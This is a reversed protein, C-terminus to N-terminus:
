ILCPDDEPHTDTILAAERSPGLVPYKVKSALYGEKIEELDVHELELWLPSPTARPPV